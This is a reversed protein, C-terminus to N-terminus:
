FPTPSMRTLIMTGVIKNRVPQLRKRYDRINEDLTKLKAKIGHDLDEKKCLLNTM